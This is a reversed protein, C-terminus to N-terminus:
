AGLWPFSQNVILLMNILMSLNIYSKCAYFYIQSQSKVLECNGFESFDIVLQKRAPEGRASHSGAVIM